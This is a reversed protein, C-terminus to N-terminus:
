NERAYDIPLVGISRLEGPGADFRQIVEGTSIDLTLIMGCSGPPASQNSVIMLDGDPTFEVQSPRFEAFTMLLEDLTVFSQLVGTSTNYVDIGAINPDHREIGYPMFLRKGDPHWSHRYHSRLRPEPTEQEVEFSTTNYATFYYAGGGEAVDMMLFQGDPSISKWRNFVPKNASNRLPYSVTAIEGESNFSLVFITDVGYKTYYVKNESPHFVANDWQLSDSAYVTELGPITLIALYKSESILVYDESPSVEIDWGGYEHTVAITDGTRTNTLWTAPVFDNLTYCSLEGNQTFEVDTFPESYPYGNYHTSDVVSDHKVSYSLVVLDYFDEGYVYSYLVHYDPEHDPDQNTCVPCDDDSCTFVASAVVIVLLLSITRLKM